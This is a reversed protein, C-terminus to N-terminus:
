TTNQWNAAPYIPQTVYNKRFSEFDISDAAELSKQEMHSKTARLRMAALNKDSLPMNKFLDRHEISKNMGFRFFPINNQELNAIIRGSPTQAPQKLLESHKQLNDRYKRDQASSDLMEAIPQCDDIIAQGWEALRIEGSENHLMFNPQRGNEVTAQWNETQRQMEALHDPPSNSLLCYLVLLDLFRVTDADIGVPSFPNVDILRIEIYEIGRAALANLPREGPLTARKPRIASYFENEIQLLSTSLQRYNNDPAQIGVAQYPPYPETLAAYLSNAYDKLSNFSIQLRAQAASQYGLRSMRLSTAYQLFLTGKDLTELSYSPKAKFTKCVAPSSGFLYVLLWSCRRFNRILDLNRQTKFAQLALGSNEIRALQQWFEDSMSFNFHIGSITQMAKGYRLGLGLRYVTKLRAINSTGYQGIPIQADEALMCPMSAAWLAENKLARHVFQHIETLESLMADIDAHVGTILELQAESFDTTIQPHTLASGLAAPHPTQALMGDAHIRLSEKEIGRYIEGLRSENKLQGFAKLASNLNLSTM